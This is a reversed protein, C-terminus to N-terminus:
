RILIMKRSEVVDGAALRYFYVGSAVSAGTEDRTDWLVTHHGAAREGDVITRVVQGLLNFVVLRVRSRRPLSYDIWTHPNFPNPYNQLLVCREPLPDTNRESADTPLGDPLFYLHVSEGNTTAMINGDVSLYDGKRGGADILSPYLGDLSFVGVGEEGVTYLRNDKLVARTVPVGIPVTTEIVPLDLDSLDVCNMLDLEFYVLYDDLFLLEHIRVDVDISSRHELELDPTIQFIDIRNADGAVLWVSDRLAVATVEDEFSWSASLEIEEGSFGYISITTRGLVLLSSGDEWHDLFVIGFASTDDLAFSAEMVHDPDSSHGVLAVVNWDSYLIILTDGNNDMDAVHLLGDGITYDLLPKTEPGITYVDVPNAKGGTYLRSAYLLVDSVPGPRDFAVVPGVFDELSYLVLGGEAGPLLLHYVGDLVILDGDVLDDGTPITLRQDYDGRDVLTVVRNSLFVYTSGMFLIRQPALLGDISDIIGSGVHGFEGMFVGSDTASILVLAGDKSFGSARLPVYLSDVFGDLSGDSVDYRMVGNYEDLVYLTDNELHLQSVLIGKMCSDVFQADDFGDLTFRWIGDFWASIYLSQGDLIFDAFPVGPDFQGLASIEPLHGIDIYLLREDLTKVVLLDGYAKMALPYDDLFLQSAQVFISHESVYECVVVGDPSLAIAYGDIVMVSTFRNWLLTYDPFRDDTPWAPVALAMLLVAHLILRRM